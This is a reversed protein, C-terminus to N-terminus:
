RECVQYYNSLNVILILCLTRQNDKLSCDSNYEGGGGLINTKKNWNIRLPFIRPHVSAAGPKSAAIRLRRRQRHTPAADKEKKKRSERHSPVSKPRNTSFRALKPRSPGYQGCGGVGAGFRGIWASIFFLFFLLAFRVTQVFVRYRLIETWKEDESKLERVRQREPGQAGCRWVVADGMKWVIESEVWEWVWVIESELTEVRLESVSQERDGRLYWDWAKLRLKAYSECANVKKM